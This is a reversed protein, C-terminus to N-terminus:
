AVNGALKWAAYRNQRAQIHLHRVIPACLFFQEFGKKQVADLSIQEIRGWVPGQSRLGM